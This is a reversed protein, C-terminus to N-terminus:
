CGETEFWKAQHIEANMRERFVSMVQNRNMLVTSCYVDEEKEKKGKETSYAVHHQKWFCRGTTFEFRWVNNSLTAQTITIKM